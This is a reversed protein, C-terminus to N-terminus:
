WQAPFHYENKGSFSSQVGYTYWRDIYSSRETLTIRLGNPTTLTEDRKDLVCM